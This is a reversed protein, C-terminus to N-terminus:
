WHLLMMLTGFGLVGWAKKIRNQKVDSVQKFINKSRKESEDLSKLLIAAQENNIKGAKKMNKIKEWYDM